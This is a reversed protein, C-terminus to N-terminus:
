LDLIFPQGISIVNRFAAVRDIRRWLPTKSVNEGLVIQTECKADGRMTQPFALTWHPMETM